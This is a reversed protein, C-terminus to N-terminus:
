SCVQGLAFVAEELRTSAPASHLRSLLVYSLHPRADHPTCGAARIVAYNPGIIKQLPAGQISMMGLTHGLYLRRIRYLEGVVRGDAVAVDVPEITVGEARGLERDGYGVLKWGNPTDLLRPTERSIYYSAGQKGSANEEQM